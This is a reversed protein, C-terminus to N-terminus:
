SRTPTVSHDASPACATPDLRGSLRFLSFGVYQTRGPYGPVGPITLIDRRILSSAPDTSTWTTYSFPTKFVEGRNSVLGTSALVYGYRGTNLIQRWRVCSAIPGYGRHAEAQGVYQVYNSLDKGYLEYQVQTYEGAVAIRANSVHQAWVVYSPTTPSTYRNRIYFNQVAFGSAVL